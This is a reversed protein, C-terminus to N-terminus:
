PGSPGSSRAPGCCENGRLVAISERAYEVSPLLNRRESSRPARVGANWYFGDNDFFSEALERSPKEIFRKVRLAERICLFCAGFVAQDRNVNLILNDINKGTALLPLLTEMVVTGDRAYVEIGAM